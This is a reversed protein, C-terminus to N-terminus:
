QQLNLETVIKLAQAANLAAQAYQMAHIADGSLESSRANTKVALELYKSMPTAEKTEKDDRLM